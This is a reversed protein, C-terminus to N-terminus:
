KKEDRKELPKIEVHWGLPPDPVEFVKDPIKVDTKLDEFVVTTLSKEDRARVKVPLYSESDIWIDMRSFRIDKAHHERPSLRLRITNKPDSKRDPMKRVNFYEVITETKQRFPVPFPGRGLRFPDIRQGETAVQYRTMQKLRTKKITLWYGDFGYELQRKVPRADGLKVTEFLVHFRPPRKDTERSYHLVGTRKETDGAILDIVEFDVDTQVTELKNGAAEFTDLVARVEPEVTPATTPRTPTNADRRRSEAQAATVVPPTTGAPQTTLEAEVVVPDDAGAAAAVLALLVWAVSTTYRSM